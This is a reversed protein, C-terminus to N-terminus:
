PGLDDDVTRTVLHGGESAIGVVGQHYPFMLTPAGARLELEHRVREAPSGPHRRAFRPSGRRKEFSTAGKMAAAM